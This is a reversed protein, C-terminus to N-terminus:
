RGELNKIYEIAEKKHLAIRYGNKKDTVYEWTKNDIIYYKKPKDSFEQLKYRKIKKM